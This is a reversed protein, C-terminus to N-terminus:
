VLRKSWDITYDIFYRVATSVSTSKKTITCVKWKMTEKFPIMRINSYKMDDFIFDLSVTNSKNNSCIKHCLSFGSTNFLINPRVGLKSCENCIINHIKFHNSEIVIPEECMEVLSISDRDYFKSKDHAVFYVKSSFIETINFLEPDPNPTLGIDAKGNLVYEEVMSDPFEVYDLHIEEYARSFDLIYEPSLHRIVGFASCLKIYGMNQLKLANVEACSLNFESVINVARKYFSEGYETNYVGSKTRVFLPVNLESEMRKIINSLGQPSVFLKEAAKTMSGCNYVELFYEMDKIKM